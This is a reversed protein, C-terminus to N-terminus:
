DGSDEGDEDGNAKWYLESYEEQTVIEDDSPMTNAEAYFQGSESTLDDYYGLQYTKSSVLINTYNDIDEVDEADIAEDSSKSKDYTQVNVYVPLMTDKSVFICTYYIYVGDESQAAEELIYYNAYDIADQDDEYSDDIQLNDVSVFNFFTTFISRYDDNEDTAYEVWGYDSAIYKVGNEPNDVDQKLKTEYFTEDDDDVYISTYENAALDGYLEASSVVELSSDTTACYMAVYDYKDITELMKNYITAADSESDDTADATEVVDDGTTSTAETDGCGTLASISLAILLTKILKNRM